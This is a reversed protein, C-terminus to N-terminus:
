GIRIATLTGARPTGATGSGIMISYNISKDTDTSIIHNIQYTQWYGTGNVWGHTVADDIFTRSGSTLDTLYMDVSTTTLCRVTHRALILWKGPTLTINEVFNAHNNNINDNAAAANRSVTYGIQNSAYSPVTTYNLNYGNTCRVNGVVDLAVTPNTLDIGVFGGRQQLLLSQAANGGACQIYGFGSTFDVGMGMSYPTVGTKTSQFVLGHYQNLYSDPINNQSTNANCAIQLIGAAPNTIGIGVYGSGNVSLANTSGVKVNLPGNNADSLIDLKYAPNSTTIGIGVNGSVFLRGNLSIDESVILQYNSVNVNTIDKNQIRVASLNGHVILNGGVSV